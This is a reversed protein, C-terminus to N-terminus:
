IYYMAGAVAKDLGDRITIGSLVGGIATAAEAWVPDPNGPHASGASSSKLVPGEIAEVIDLLSVAEPPRGLLYGGKSGRVSRVIGTRKLQLLVHVLFKEPINRRVAITEVTLPEDSPLNGALELVALYGYECRASINM